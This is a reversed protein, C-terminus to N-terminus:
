KKKKYLSKHLRHQVIFLCISVIIFIIMWTTTAWEGDVRHPLSGDYLGIALVGGLLSFMVSMIFIIDRFVKVQTRRRM